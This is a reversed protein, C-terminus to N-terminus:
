MLFLYTQGLTFYKDIATIVPLQLFVFLYLQLVCFELSIMSTFSCIHGVFTLFKLQRSLVKHANTNQISVCTHVSDFTIPM